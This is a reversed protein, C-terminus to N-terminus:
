RCLGQDRLSVLHSLIADVDDAGYLVREGASIRHKVWQGNFLGESNLACPQKVPTAAKAPSWSALLTLLLSTIITLIIRM